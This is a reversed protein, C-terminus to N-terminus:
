PRWDSGTGVHVQAQVWSNGDGVWVMVPRWSSGTGIWTGHMTTFRQSSSRPGWGSSNHAEVTAYYTRGPALGNVTGSTGTVAKAAVQNTLSSNTYVRIRYGDVPHGNDLAPPDWTLSVGVPSRDTVAVNRPASPASDSTRQSSVGSFAGAGLDNYARVRAYYLTYPELGSVVRSTATSAEYGDYVRNQFGSDTALQLRYGNLALGGNDDPASWSVRMSDRQVQLFQPTGPPGPTRANTTFYATSSWEGWGVSNHARVQVGYRVNPTLNNVDYTRGSPVEPREPQIGQDFDLQYKDIAAGNNNPAGWTVRASTATVRTFNPRNSKSPPGADTRFFSENSFPGWGARNRARVQVGYRTNPQLRDRYYSKSGSHTPREPSLGDDFDLQYLTIPAGGTAPTEWNVTVNTQDISSYTCPPPRGPPQAPVTYNFAGSPTAGNYIGTVSINVTTTEGPEANLNQTAIRVTGGGNYFNVTADAVDPGSIHATQDDSTNGYQDQIWATISGNGDRDARWTIGVRFEQGHGSTWPGWEDVM